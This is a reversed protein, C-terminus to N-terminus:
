SEFGGTYNFFDTKPKIGKETGFEGPNYTRKIKLEFFGNLDFQGYIFPDRNLKLNVKEISYITESGDEIDIWEYYRSEIIKFNNDILFDIELGESGDNSENIILIHNDLLKIELVLNEFLYNTRKPKFLNSTNSEITEFFKSDIIAKQGFMINIQFVLLIITIVTKM